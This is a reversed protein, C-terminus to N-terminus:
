DATIQTARTGFHLALILCVVILVQVTPLLLGIGAGLGLLAATVPRDALAAGWDRDALRLALVLATALFIRDSAAVAGKDLAMAVLAALLIDVFIAPWAAFRPKATTGPAKSVSRLRRYTEAGLAAVIGAGFSAAAYGGVALGAAALTGLALTGLAFGSAREDHVSRRGVLDTVIRSLRRRPGSSAAWDREFWGEEIARSDQESRVIRYVGSGDSAMPRTPVGSQLAIRLLSGGPECDDPLQALQAVLSGPVFMLGAALRTLDIRDFGQEGGEQAPITAIAHGEEVFHALRDEDIMLGPSFVLLEDGPGVIRALRHLDGVPQFRSGRGEVEKQLALPAAIERPAWCLVRECGCALAMAAQWRYIARGSVRLSGDAGNAPEELSILAFRM